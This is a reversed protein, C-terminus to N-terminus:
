RPIDPPGAALTDLAKQLRTKKAPDHEKVLARKLITGTYENDDKIVSLEFLALQRVKPDDSTALDYILWPVSAEGIRGLAEMAPYHSWFWHHAFTGHYRKDDTLTIRSNLASAADYFQGQGLLYAAYFQTDPDTSNLQSELAMRIQYNYIRTDRIVTQREKDNLTDLKNIREILTDHSVGAPSSDQAPARGTWAAILSVLLIAGAAIWIRKRTYKTM